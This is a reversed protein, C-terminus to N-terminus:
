PDKQLSLEEHDSPVWWMLILGVLFFIITVSIGWRISQTAATVLSILFPGLFATAKGSFAFFGFIQNRVSPESKKSIYARSSAQLPGVFLGLGVAAIWFFTEKNVILSLSGFIILGILSIIITKKSGIKDDLFSLCLAGVGSSVNLAVGFLLVRQESMQFAQAAYIGGFAFLATLGDIFIMRTILFRLLFPHQKFTQRMSILSKQSSHINPVYVFFPLAFFLYWLAAFLFTVRVTEFYPILFIVITLAVMGGFYGMGWGWGSWRGLMERPSLDPLLANYFVYALESCVSAIIFLTMAMKLYDPSPLAFWLSATAIFCIGSFLMVWQKPHGKKDAVFGIFPALIAIILGSIGTTLGWLTNGEIPNAAISKTFYVPFVFTAMLVNFASTGWDYIAWAWLTKSSPDKSLNFM